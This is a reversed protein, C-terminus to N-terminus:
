RRFRTQKPQETIKGLKILEEYKSKRELMKLAGKKQVFKSKPRKHYRISRVRQLIGSGRVRKTFRRLLNATSENMNKEVEVNIM